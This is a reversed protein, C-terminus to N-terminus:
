VRERCSARGIEYASAVDKGYMKEIVWKYLKQIDAPAKTIDLGLDPTPTQDWGYRETM